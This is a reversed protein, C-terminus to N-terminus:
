YHDPQAHPAPRICVCLYVTLYECSDRLSYFVCLHNVDEVDLHQRFRRISLDNRKRFAISVDAQYSASFALGNGIEFMPRAPTQM